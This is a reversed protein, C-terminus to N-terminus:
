VAVLERRDAATADAASPAASEATGHGRAHRPLLFALAFALALLGITLLGTTNAADLFVQRHSVADAAPTAAALGFFITGLAAIGLSMGIQQVSQLIGSASGVERDDVGATIIDFLPGFVQGMGVGGILTPIVFHWSGISTGALEFTVLLAVLGTAMVALGVHLLRRGHRAMLQGSVITGLAWPLTSLSARLPSFGLGIQMLLSLILMTGGMAATFAVAVIAGFVYPRKRFVSPEVLTARGARSRRVQHLGFAALIPVALALSLKTWLPWGLERGQVLPFVLLFIGVAAFVIGGLDLRGDRLTAAAKPLFRAGAALAFLGVPLNLLFIARWGTGLIDADIIVGSLIPGLLASLGMVPGFVGWVKAMQEGPFMERLLGFTQPLMTAGFAGQLVRAGILSEPSWALACLLSAATFGAIGILLVRRRGFMDGLRGGVLLGVAMAMTYGATMWQLSAESGGLEGRISPAALQVVTSDLLDMVCAAIVAALGLYAYRNKTETKTM